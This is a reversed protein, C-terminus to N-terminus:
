QEYSAFEAENFKPNTDQTEVEDAPSPETAKLFRGLVMGAAFIAGFAIAPHERIAQRVDTAIDQLDKQELYDAVASVRFALNEAPSSIFKTVEDGKMKDAADFISKEAARIQEALHLKQGSIADLTNQKAKAIVKVNERISEGMQQAAESVRKTLEPQNEASSTEPQSLTSEM